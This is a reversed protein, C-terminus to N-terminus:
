QKGSPLETIVTQTPFAMEIGKERFIRMVELNIQQQADMYLVYDSNDVWYVVDFNLSFSGITSFHARSFRLHPIKEIIEKLIIPIEELLAVPTEFVVGFQFLIRREIMRKYNRLSSETLLSNSIVLQEGTLSRLRTSRIGINEINGSFDGFVIYDGLEFPRDLLISFYSFLDGLIKQAALAVAIGTIGLGTLIANIDYGLSKAVGVIGFIWIAAKALSSLGKLGQIQSTNQPNKKAYSTNLFDITETLFRIIALTVLISGVSSIIDRWSEPFELPLLAIVLIIYYFVPFITKSLISDLYTFIQKGTKESIKKLKKSLWHRGVYLVVLGVVFILIAVFYEYVPNGLWEIKFLDDM